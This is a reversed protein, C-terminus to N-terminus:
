GPAIESLCADEDPLDDPNLWSRRLWFGPLIASEVREAGVAFETLFEGERRFFQHTAHDPDLLWYENVGHEEYAAFKPGADLHGTRPSLAEIVLAPAFPACAPALRSVQDPTFYCLDPLFVNRSSLRVAFTERHLEGLKHRRIYSALFREVFNLLRAHRLNVPSHMYIEGDVLDAHKGPKLWALFEDARLLRDRPPPDAIPAPM